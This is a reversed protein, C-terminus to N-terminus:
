LNFQEQLHKVIQGAQQKNVYSNAQEFKDNAAIGIYLNNNYVCGLEIQINVDNTEVYLIDSM